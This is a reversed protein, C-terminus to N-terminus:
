RQIPGIAGPAARKLRTTLRELVEVIPARAEGSGPNRRGFVLLRACSYNITWALIGGLALDLWRNSWVPSHLSVLTVFAFYNCLNGFGSTAMYGFWRPVWNKRTLCRFVWLGNIWFTVQMASTLSFVRAWAPAMGLHELLTLVGGDTLLGVGAVLSYCMALHGEGKAAPSFAM